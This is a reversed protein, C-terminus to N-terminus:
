KNLVVIAHDNRSCALAVLSTDSAEGATAYIHHIDIGEPLLKETINRLVGPKNPVEVLVCDMEHPAFNRARLADGVRLNDSTILHLVASGDQVTGQVAIINVGKEAILKSIQNLVGIENVVKLVIEKVM